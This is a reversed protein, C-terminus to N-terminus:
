VVSKRDGPNKAVLDEASSGVFDAGPNDGVLVRGTGGPKGLSQDAIQGVLSGASPPAATQVAAVNNVTNPALNTGVSAM